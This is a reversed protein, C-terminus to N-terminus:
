SSGNTIKIDKDIVPLTFSFTSGAGPKSKCYIEGGHADVIGKCIALGLGTGPYKNSLSSEVQSFKNFIYGIYEGPIGVGTDTVSVEIFKKVGKHLDSAKEEQIAHITITGKEPTFKIANGVLNTLLQEIRSADAYVAPLDLPVTMNLSISRDDAFPKLGGVINEITEIIDVESIKLVMKGAEIKSIDLLDNILYSLRSINREAMSLFREQTDTLEGAKRKILIDIANKISTLPTRLEHSAISIFESKIDDLRKLKENAERLKEEAERIGTIDFLTVLYAESGSWDIDMVHMEVIRKGGVESITEIETNNGAVVPFGFNKGLLKEAKWGFLNKAAHNLFQVKGQTDVIIIGDPINSIITDLDAPFNISHICNNYAM